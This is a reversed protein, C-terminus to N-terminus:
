AADIQMPNKRKIKCKHGILFELERDMVSYVRDADSVKCLISDHVTLCPIEMLRLSEVVKGIVLDAETSQLELALKNKQFEKMGQIISYLEPFLNMFARLLPRGNGESNKGFFVQAFVLEKLKKYDPYKNGSAAELVRYFNGELVIALYKQKEESNELYLDAALLPQSNAIDIEAVAEGDIRLFERLDSWLNTYNNFLRGTKYDTILYYEKNYIAEVSRRYCDFQYDSAEKIENIYSMAEPQITTKNMTNYIHMRNPDSGIANLIHEEHRERAKSAKKPNAYALRVTKTRHKPSISFANKTRRLKGGKSYHYGPKEEIIGLEILHDIIPRYNRLVRDLHRSSVPAFYSNSENARHQFYAQQIQNLFYMYKWFDRDRIRAALLAVPASVPVYFILEKQPDVKYNWPVERISEPFTSLNLSLTKHYNPQLLQFHHGEATWKERENEVGKGKEKRNGEEKINGRKQLKGQGSGESADSEGELGGNSTHGAKSALNCKLHTRNGSENDSERKESEDDGAFRSETQSPWGNARCPRRQTSSPLPEALKNRGSM